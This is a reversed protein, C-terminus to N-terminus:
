AKNGTKIILNLLIVIKWFLDVSKIFLLEDKELKINAKKKM